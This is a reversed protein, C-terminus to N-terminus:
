NLSALWCWLLQNAEDRIFEFVFEILLHLSCPGFIFHSPSFAAPLMGSLFSCCVLIHSRSPPIHRFLSHKGQLFRNSLLYTCVSVIKSTESAREVITHGNLLNVLERVDKSGCGERVSFEM